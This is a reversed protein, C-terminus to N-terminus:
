SDEQIRESGPRAAPGASLSRRPSPTKAELLRQGPGELEVLLALLPAKCAPPPVLMRRVREM